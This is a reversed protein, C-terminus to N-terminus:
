PQPAADEEPGPTWPEPPPPPLEEQLAVVACAVVDVNQTAYVVFEGMEGQKLDVADPLTAFVEKMAGPDDGPEVRLVASRAPDLEPASSPIWSSYRGKAGAFGTIRGIRIEGPAQDTTRARCIARIGRDKPHKEVKPVLLRMPAGAKALRRLRGLDSQRPGGVHQLVDARLAYELGNPLPDPMGLLRALPLALEDEAGLQLLAKVIAVRATQYREKGLQDALAPRAADEGIQALAEAIFPRLRVEDLASILPYVADESRIRALAVLIEKARAEALPEREAPDNSTARRWWAILEREGRADGQEALALAALRRLPVDPEDILERTRAAGEGLRTLALAARTRVEADEDRVVALRLAAATEPRRLDFLVEAAKRRIVVDADDLLAAVDAAADADGAIGRRLAAPWGKGEARLGAVEFTGHSAAIKALDARLTDRAASGKDGDGVRQGPDTALDHLACAGVKRACVLRLGGRALM